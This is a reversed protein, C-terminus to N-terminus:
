HHHFHGHERRHRDCALYDRRCHSGPEQAVNALWAVGRTDRCEDKLQAVGGISRRAAYRAEEPTLGAALNEEIQQEIHFRLEEDLEHDIRERRLLSRVRLLLKDAWRM